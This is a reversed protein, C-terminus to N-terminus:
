KQLSPIMNRLKWLVKPMGQESNYPMLWVFWDEPLVRHLMRVPYMLTHALTPSMLDTYCSALVGDVIISGGPTHPCYIGPTFWEKSIETVKVQKLNRAGYEVEDCAFMVDGVKVDKATKLQGVEGVHVLHGPSLNLVKEDDTNISIFCGMEDGAAHSFMIVKEFDVQGHDNVVLVEDNLELHEMARIGGPTNVLAEPPFWQEYEKKITDYELKIGDNDEIVRKVMALVMDRTAVREKESYDIDAEKMDQAEQEVLIVRNNILTILEQFEPATSSKLIFNDVTDTAYNSAAHTAVIFSYKITNSTKSLLQLSISM